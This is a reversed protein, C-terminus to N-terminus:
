DTGQAMRNSRHPFYAQALPVISKKTQTFPQCDSVSYMDCIIPFVKTQLFGMDICEERIATWLSYMARTWAFDSHEM